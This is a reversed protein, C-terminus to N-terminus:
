FGGKLRNIKNRRFQIDVDLRLKNQQAEYIEKSFVIGQSLDEKERLERVRAEMEAREAALEAAEAELIKIEDSVSEDM